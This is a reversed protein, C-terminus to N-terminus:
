PKVQNIFQGFQNGIWNTFATQMYRKCAGPVNETNINQYILLIPWGATQCLCDYFSLAKVPLQETM